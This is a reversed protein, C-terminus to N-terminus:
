PNSRKFRGSRLFELTQAAVSESRMIFTHTEPVMIFDSMGELKASQVSVTGDSEGPVVMSGLPNISRTGAIIGVEFDPPPLRNPLSQADTGLQTATPGLAWRFLASGGLLDVAESGHNPPALMVVRGLNRTEHAALYARILIGGLSHTVFHLRRTKKCCAVLQKHLHADLGDPSLETSPYRVNHVVYGADSLRSGLLHMSRGSRALGHLLVVTEPPSESRPQEARGAVPALASLLLSFLLVVIRM